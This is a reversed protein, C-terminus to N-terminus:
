YAYPDNFPTPSTEDTSAPIQADIQDALARVVRARHNMGQGDSWALLRLCASVTSLGDSGFWDPHSLDLTVTLREPETTM